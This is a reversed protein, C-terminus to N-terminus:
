PIGRVILPGLANAVSLPLHRWVRPGLSYAGEPSPTTMGGRRSDQYWFLQEDRSGWQKKFRHTGSGPSCRGFNFHALGAESAREIFRWYLIMNPAMRSHSRLSSAWTLEFESGWQFGCAAAVPHREHYAAGIWMSEGFEDQAHRFFSRPMVPTGLDRMNRAFVTYFADLQEPGFQVAVGEKEPRRIQSRLKSDFAKFQRASGASSLDLVVTIKRQSAHLELDREGRCRLELLDVKKRRALAVAEAVLCRQAADEGIPGGYNLFPMSVLFNGFIRSRVHVLPLVARLAGGGDRAMFYHSEHGFSRGIVRRWGYRHFHTWGIQREIFSDWEAAQTEGAADVRFTV